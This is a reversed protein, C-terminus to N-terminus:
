WPLDNPEEDVKLNVIRKKTEEHENLQAQIRLLLTKLDSTSMDSIDKTQTEEEKCWTVETALPVGESEAILKLDTKFFKDFTEPIFKVIFYSGSNSLSILSVNILTQVAVEFEEKEM